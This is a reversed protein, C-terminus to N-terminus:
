DGLREHLATLAANEEDVWSQVQDRSAAIAQTDGTEENYNVLRTDAYLKDLGALAIMTDSRSSELESLAMNAAAWAESGAPAGAGAAVVQRARAQKGAFASHASRASDVLQGIDDALPSSLVPPAPEPAAEPAVPEPTGTIREADRIALSPYDGSSACAALPLAALLPLLRLCFRKM